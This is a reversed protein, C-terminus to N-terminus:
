KKVEKQSTEDKNDFDGNSSNKIFPIKLRSLLKM